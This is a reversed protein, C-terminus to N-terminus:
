PVKLRVPNSEHNESNHVFILFDGSALTLPLQDITTETLKSHKLLASNPVICPNQEPCGNGLVRVYVSQPLFESGTLKVFIQEGPKIETQPEITDVRPTPLNARATNSKEILWRGDVNRVVYSVFYPGVYKNKALSGDERYEAIFWKELTKVLAMENKADIELSQFEFQECKTENGYHLGKELLSRVGTRIRKRDFNSNMDLETTWYKDLDEEKFSKPDRYLVLSEYLQSDRVVQRIRDEVPASWYSQAALYVAVGAVLVVPIVLLLARSRARLPSIPQSEIAISTPEKEHAILPLAESPASGNDTSVDREFIYGRNPATGIFLGDPEIESLAKRLKRIYQAVNQATAGTYNEGWVRSIIEEHSVVQKPKELLVALIQISKKNLGEVLKDDFYLSNSRSDVRFNDFRFDM